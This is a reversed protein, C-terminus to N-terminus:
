RCGVLCILAVSMICLSYHLAAVVCACLDSHLLLCLCGIILMTTFDASFSLCCCCFVILTLLELQLLSVQAQDRQAQADERAEVGEQLEQGLRRQAEVMQGLQGLQREAQQGQEEERKFAAEAEALRSKLQQEVEKHSDLQSQLQQLESSDSGQVPISSASHRAAASCDTCPVTVLLYCINCSLHASTEAHWQTCANATRPWFAWPKPCSAPFTTFTVFGYMLLDASASQPVGQCACTTQTSACPHHAHPSVQALATELQEKLQSTEAEAREARGVLRTNDEELETNSDFLEDVQMCTESLAIVETLLRCSQAAHAITVTTPLASCLLLWSWASTCLMKLPFVTVLWTVFVKTM